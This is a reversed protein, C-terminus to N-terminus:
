RMMRGRREAEYELIKKAKKKASRKAARERKEQAVQIISKQNHFLRHCSECLSILDDLSEKGLVTPYVRHHVHINNGDNCLRCKHSDRVLVTHRINIWAYTRLYEQYKTLKKNM